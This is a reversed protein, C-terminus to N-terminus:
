GAQQGLPLVPGARAVAVTHRVQGLLPPTTVEVRVTVTEGLVLCSRLVGYNRRAVDSAAACAPDGRQLAAAGALSGLDAAAQARRHALVVAAVAVCVLTLIALMGIVQVGLVTASGAESARRRV